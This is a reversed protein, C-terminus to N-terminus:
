RRYGNGIRFTKGRRWHRADSPATQTLLPCQCLYAAVRPWAGECNESQRCAQEVPLDGPKDGNLIKVVYTAARRWLDARSAGYSALGGVVVFKRIEAIMPLRNTRVFEGIQQRFAITSPDTLLLRTSSSLSSHSVAIDTIRRFGSM